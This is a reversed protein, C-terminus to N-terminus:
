RGPGVRGARGRSVRRGGGGPGPRDRRRADAAVRPVALRDVRDPGTSTTVPAPRAPVANPETEAYRAVARAALRLFFPKITEPTSSRGLFLLACAALSLLHQARWREELGSPRVWAVAEADVRRILLSLWEPM